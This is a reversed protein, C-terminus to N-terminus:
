PCQFNAGAKIAAVGLETIATNANRWIKVMDGPETVAAKIADWMDVGGTKLLLGRAGSVNDSWQDSVVRLVAFPLNRKKVFEALVVSENDICWAQTLAYLGARQVPTDATDFTATSYWPAAVVGGLAESLRNTWAQDPTYAAGDDGILSGALTVQGVVPANPRLGGCLGFSLIAECDSPILRDYDALMQVGQLILTGPTAHAKAVNAELGMGCKIVLKSM